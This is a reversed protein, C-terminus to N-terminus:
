VAKRRLALARRCGGLHIGRVPVGRAVDAPDGAGTDLRSVRCPDASEGRGTLGLSLHGRAPIGQEPSRGSGKIREAMKIPEAM